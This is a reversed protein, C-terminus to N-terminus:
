ISIKKGLKRRVAVFQGAHMLPHTGCLNLLAYATPAFAPFQPDTRALDDDSLGDLVALTAARQAKWLARYRDRSYFKSPDDVTFAERGHGEQFDAPLPPCSGPKVLEVFHREAGIIHGLQWAIHNMGPVPRVLLDADELDGLYNDLVSQSMGITNRIVDKPSMSKRPNDPPHLAAYDV